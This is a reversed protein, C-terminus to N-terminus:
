PLQPLEDPKLLKGAPHTEAFPISVETEDVRCVLKEQPTGPQQTVCSRLDMVVTNRDAQRYDTVQRFSAPRSDPMSDRNNQVAAATLVGAAVLALGLRKPSIEHM